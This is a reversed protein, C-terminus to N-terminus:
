EYFRRVEGATPIAIGTGTGFLIGIGSPLAVGVERGVLGVEIMTTLEGGIGTSIDQTGITGVAGTMGRNEEAAKETTALSTRISTRGLLPVLRRGDLLRGIQTERDTDTLWRIGDM